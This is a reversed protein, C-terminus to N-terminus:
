RQRALIRRLTEPHWRESRKPRYGEADLVRAIERFSVGARRLEAMRALARQEAEDLVLRRGVSRFGFAPAGGAHGGRALTQRRRASARAAAVERQLRLLSGALQRLQQRLPDAAVEVVDARSTFVRGGYWWILALVAEQASTTRALTELGEVVLGAARREAILALAEHLGRRETEVRDTRAEDHAIAVLHHGKGRAWDRLALEQQRVRSAGSGPPVRVYGVLRV